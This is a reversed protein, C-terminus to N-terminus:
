ADLATEVRRRISMETQRRGADIAAAARKVQEQWVKRGQVAVTHAADHGQRKLYARADRGSVPAAILAVAVGIAIGAAFPLVATWAVGAEPRDFSVHKM